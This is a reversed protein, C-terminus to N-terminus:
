SAQTVMYIVHTLATNIVDTMEMKSKEFKFALWLIFQPRWPISVAEKKVEL